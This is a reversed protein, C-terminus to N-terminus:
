GELRSFGLDAAVAGPVVFSRDLSSPETVEYADVADLEVEASWANPGTMVATTLYVGVRRGAAGFCEEEDRVDIPGVRDGERDHYLRIADQGPRSTV